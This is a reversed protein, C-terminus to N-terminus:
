AYVFIKGTKPDKNIALKELPKIAPGKIAEGNLNFESGHCPCVLKDGEVKNIYCGLHTCKSLYAKTNTSEKVIIIPNLFFTGNGLDDPLYIKEKHTDSEIKKKVESNLAYLFPFSMLVSLFRIFKRRTIKM